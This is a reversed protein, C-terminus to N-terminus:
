DDGIRYIHTMLENALAKTMDGKDAPKDAPKDEKKAEPEQGDAPQNLQMWPTVLSPNAPAEGLGNEIPDYGEEARLEDVTLIMKRLEFKKSIDEPDLGTWRFCYQEGFESVIYDTLLAEHHALLPRLGSDRSAALKEATDSGGLASTSGATFSDFHIEAPSMGYVGCILSSLFTMWKSFYMENYEVGFKEFSAKSGADASTMVPLAWSNSVGKVMNSWYRKFADLDAKDYNGILHLMGKPIANSDFGRLNYNMANLFGTIAKVLLETESMGYGSLQVDTRPNRPEYILDDYGYAASVRGDIVQLAFKDLDGRYGDANCLRITAGDVAYFGSLKGGARTWETEIGASDMILSDRTTKAMFQSFSDRKLKKRARPNFEDGCNSIFSTIYKITDSESKSLGHTPDIHRICFGPKDSGSDNAGCFLGQQRIRTLIVANLIETKDVINKLVDFSAGPKEWYDGQKLIRYDDLIISKMGPDNNKLAVSPFPINEAELSKSIDGLADRIADMPLLDSDTPIFSKALESFALSREDAHSQPTSDLM